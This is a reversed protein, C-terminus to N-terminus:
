TYPNHIEAPAGRGAPPRPTKSTDRIRMVCVDKEGCLKARPRHLSVSPRLAPPRDCSRSAQTTSSKYRSRGDCSSPGLVRTYGGPRHLRPGPKKEPPTPDTPTTIVTAFDAPDLDARADPPSSRSVHATERPLLAARPWPSDTDPTTRLSARRAAPPCM